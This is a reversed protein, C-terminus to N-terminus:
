GAKTGAVLYVTVAHRYQGTRGAEELDALWASGEAEAVDGRAQAEARYRDLRSREAPERVETSALVHLMVRLDVLGLELFLRPLRGGIRGSRFHDRRCALIRRTVEPDAGALSLTGYDPEVAVVRGGPRTVRVMETLAQSPADLHQLVREIRCADFSADPFALSCADGQYFAVPLPTGAARKRAEAIMTASADLGVALGDPAVIAALTRVDDGTGCGIDLVRDGPRLDLLEGVQTEVRRWFDQAATSDLRRVYETPDSAQDVGVFGSESSQESANM